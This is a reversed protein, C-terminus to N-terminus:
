WTADEVVAVAGKAQTSWGAELVLRTAVSDTQWAARVPDAVTGADTVIEAAPNAMHITADRSTVIEVGGTWVVLAPLALAIIRGQPIHISPFIPLGPDIGDLALSLARNPHMVLGVEPSVAFVASALAMLDARRSAEDGGPYAAIPTVGHLLGAPREDDPGTADFMAADLAAAAARRLLGDVVQPATSRKLLEASLVAIAALKRRVLTTMDLGASVVPIADLDRIWTATASGDLLPLNVTARVDDVLIGARAMLAAAASIPALDGLFAALATQALAAADATSLPSTTAKLVALAAADDEVLREPSDGLHRMAAAAAARTISEPRIRVSSRSAAEALLRAHRPITQQSM